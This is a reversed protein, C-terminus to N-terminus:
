PGPGGAPVQGCGAGGRSLRHGGTSVRARPRGQKMRSVGRPVWPPCLAPFSPRPPRGAPEGARPASAAPAARSRATWTCSARTTARPRSRASRCPPRWRPPVQTPAPAWGGGKGFWEGSGTRVPWKTIDDPWIHAGSSAPEECTRSASTLPCFSPSHCGRGARGGALSGAPACVVISLGVTAAGGLDARPRVQPGPSM